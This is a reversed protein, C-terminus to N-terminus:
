IYIMLDYISKHLKKEPYFHLIDVCPPQRGAQSLWTQSAQAIITNHSTNDKGEQRDEEDVGKKSLRLYM